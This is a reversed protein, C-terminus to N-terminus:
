CSTPNSWYYMHGKKKKRVDKRWAGSCLAEKFDWCVSAEYSDWRLNVSFLSIVHDRKSNLYRVWEGTNRKVGKEKDRHKNEKLLRLACFILKVAFFYFLGLESKCECSLEAWVKRDISRCWSWCFFLKGVEWYSVTRLQDWDLCVLTYYYSPVKLVPKWQIGIQCDKHPIEDLKRSQMKTSARKMTLVHEFLQFTM